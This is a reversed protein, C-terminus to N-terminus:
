LVIPLLEFMLIAALSVVAIMAVTDAWLERLRSNPGIPLRPVIESPRRYRQLHTVTSM